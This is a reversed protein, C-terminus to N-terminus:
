WSPRPPAHDPRHGVAAALGARRRSRRSWVPPQGGAGRGPALPRATAPTHIWYQSTEFSTVWREALHFTRLAAGFGTKKRGRPPRAAHPTAL